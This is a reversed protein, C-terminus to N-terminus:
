LLVVLTVLMLVTEISILLVSSSSHICAPQECVCGAQPARCKWGCSPMECLFSCSGPVACIPGPCITECQPCSDAECMDKPCRTYCRTPDVGGICHTPGGGEQECQLECRADRCVPECIAHLTAGICACEPHCGLADRKGFVCLVLFLLIPLKM